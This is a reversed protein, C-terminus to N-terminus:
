PKPIMNPRPWEEAVYLMAAKYTLRSDPEIVWPVGGWRLMLSCRLDDAKGRRAVLSVKIGRMAWYFEGNWVNPSIYSPTVFESGSRPHRFSLKGDNLESYWRQEILLTMLDRMVKTKSRALIDAPQYHLPM